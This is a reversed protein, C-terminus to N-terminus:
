EADLMRYGLAVPFPDAFAQGARLATGDRASLVGVKGSPILIESPNTDVSYLVNVLPWFHFGPTLIHAQPGNEGNTALIRGESLSSGGYIRFMQGLHGDPVHVFSTSLIAIAILAVGAVRVLNVTIANRFSEPLLTSAGALLIAGVVVGIILGLMVIKGTVRGRRLAEPTRHSFTGACDLGLRFARPARKRSDRGLSTANRQPM